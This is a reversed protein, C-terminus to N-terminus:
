LFVKWEGWILFRIIEAEEEETGLRASTIDHMVPVQSPTVPGGQKLFVESVM